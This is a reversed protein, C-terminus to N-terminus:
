RRSRSCSLQEEPALPGRRGGVSVLGLWGDATRVPTVYGETFGWESAMEYVRHGPDDPALGKLVESWSVPRGSALAWRPVPDIEVLSQSQYIDLWKAPWNVFHFVDGSRLRPGSVMGCASATMGVLLVAERFLSSLAQLDDCADAVKTVEFGSSRVDETVRNWSPPAEM